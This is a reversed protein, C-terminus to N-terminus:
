LEEKTECIQRMKKQYTNIRIAAVIVFFLVIYGM